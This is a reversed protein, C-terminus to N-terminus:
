KKGNDKEKISLQISYLSEQMSECSFAIRELYDAVDVLIPIDIKIEPVSVIHIEQIVKEM